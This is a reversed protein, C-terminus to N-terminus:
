QVLGADPPLLAALSFAIRLASRIAFRTQNAGIAVTFTLQDPIVAAHHHPHHECGLVRLGDAVGEGVCSRVGFRRPEISGQLM